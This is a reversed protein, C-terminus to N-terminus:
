RFVFSLIKTHTHEATEREEPIILMIPSHPSSLDLSLFTLFSFTHTHTHTQMLTHAHKQTTSYKSTQISTYTHILVYTHTRTHTHTFITSILRNAELQKNGRAVSRQSSAEMMACVRMHTLSYTHARACSDRKDALVLTKRSARYVAMDEDNLVLEVFPSSNIVCENFVGPPARRVRADHLFCGDDLPSCGNVGWGAARTQPLPSPARHSEPAAPLVPLGPTPPSCEYIWITTM